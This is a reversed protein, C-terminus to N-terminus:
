YNDLFYQRLGNKFINISKSDKIEAPLSNWFASGCISPQKYSGVLKPPKFYLDHKYARTNRPYMDNKKCFKRNLKAPFEKNYFYDYCNIGINFWYLDKLKLVELKKYLPSMETFTQTTRDFKPLRFIARIVKNQAKKINKLNNPVDENSFQNLVNKSLSSAWIVIGYNIHSEVLSHYIIKKIAIGVNPMKWFSNIMRNIKCSIITTHKKFLLKNDFHIGLYKITDDEYIVSGDEIEIYESIIFKPCVKHLEHLVFEGKKNVTHHDPDEPDGTDFCFQPAVSHLDSLDYEGKIYMKHPNPGFFLYGTKDVNILLQNCHFWEFVKHLEIKITEDYENKEVNIMLCTDDAYISFDLVNSSNVIDNMFLIFLIPALTGGQPVGYMNKYRKSSKDRIAVYQNRGTLYSEFWMLANSRVGYYELKRLLLRHPVVDFAKSVDLFVSGTKLGKDLGDLTTELLNIMAHATSLKKRFGYQSPTLINCSKVHETIRTRVVKELIKSLSNCVTIPRFNNVRIEGEKFVPTQKGDKFRTPVFGTRMSANIIHAMVPALPVSLMKIFKNPIVLPGPSSKDKLSKILNEIEFSNTDYLVLYENVPRNKHLHDLYKNDELLPPKIKSRTKDPVAEFYEAFNDAILQPDSMLENKVNKVTLPMQKKSKTSELAFNIGQWMKCSDHRHKEFYSKLYGTKKKRREATVFNNYKTFIVRNTETPISSKTSFLRNKAAIQAQLEKDIWPKYCYKVKRTPVKRLPAHSDLLKELSDILNDVATDLSPQQYVLNDWNLNNFDNTLAHTNVNNIKRRFIDDKRTDCDSFYDKHITFTAHHDSDPYQLNGAACEYEHLNSLLLDILSASRVQLSNKFYQIRTPKFIHNELEHMLFTNLFCLSDNNSVSKILDINFDGGLVVKNKDAKIKILLYDLHQIFNMVDTSNKKCHRYLGAIVIHNNNNQGHCNKNNIKLFCTDSNNNSGSCSPIVIAEFHEKVYIMVGGFKITSSTFYKKYGVIPYMNELTKNGIASSQIHCETLIIADFSLTLSNLWTILNDFNTAVGRINLNLISLDRDDIKVKSNFKEVNYYDFSDICSNILRPFHPRTPDSSDSSTERYFQVFDDTLRATDGSGVNDSSIKPITPVSGRTLM